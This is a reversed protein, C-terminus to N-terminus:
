SNKFTKLFDTRRNRSVPVPQDNSMILTGENLYKKIHDLNIPGIGYFIRIIDDESLSFDTLLTGSSYLSTTPYTSEPKNKIYDFDFGLGLWRWYYDISLGLDLGSKYDIYPTNNDYTPFDYGVRPSFQWYNHDKHTQQGEMNWSTSAIILLLLLKFLTKM